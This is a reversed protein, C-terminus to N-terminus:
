GCAAADLLGLLVSVDVPKTLYAEFGQSLARRIQEPLANASLAM